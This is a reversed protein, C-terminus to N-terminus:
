GRKAGRKSKRAGAAKRGLGIKIALQSRAAAYNPAVIPHTPPLSFKARYEVPSLQHRSGLHRKLSKLKIGCVLCVVHNPTISRKVSVAPAASHEAEGGNKAVGALAGHVERILGPLEAPAIMNKALYASIITAAMAMHDAGDSMFNGTRTGVRRDGFSFSLSRSKL